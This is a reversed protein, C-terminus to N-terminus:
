RNSMLGLRDLHVEEVPTHPPLRSGTGDALSSLHPPSRLGLIRDIAFGVVGRRFRVFVCMFPPQELRRLAARHLDGDLERHEAPTAQFDVGSGKLASSEAAQQRELLDLDMLGAVVGRHTVLGLNGVLDSPLPTFHHIEAVRAVRKSTLARLRGSLEFILVQQVSRQRTPTKPSGLRPAPCSITKM